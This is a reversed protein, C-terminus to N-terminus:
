RARPAHQQDSGRELDHSRAARLAEDAASYPARPDSVVDLNTSYVNKDKTMKVTYTGPLVRPGISAGFAASAAAPVTPAKLRMSWDVRNLGRRKSSPITGLSKGTADVVEMNLDGFIHRRRQYYTITADGSPNPWTFDADGNAWGGFASLRQQVPGTVLFAIDKALVDPTLARLPTIDDVIWIGRGHTAIVLDNERPQIALDRVAVNPMDNGKYQAWQKGGDLSVWLGFETGLFLLDSNVLDQKIVHAYGRVPSDSAVLPSWTQGFDRTVMAYPKLDGFTHM